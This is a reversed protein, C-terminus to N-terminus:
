TTVPGSAVPPNEPATVGPQHEATVAMAAMGAPARFMSAMPRSGLLGVSIKAGDAVAWLQYTHAEDLTPLAGGPDPVLYGTGDPLVVATALVRNDPTSLHVSRADPTTAARVAAAALDEAAPAPATSPASRAAQLQDIQHQQHTVVALLSALGVVVLVAAAVAWSGPGSRAAARARAAAPKPGFPLIRAPAEVPEEIADAIRDWLGEPAEEGQFAVVAAVERHATVEDRCAPCVDLHAEVAAQEDPEVADLAYAGLLEQVESHSLGPGM